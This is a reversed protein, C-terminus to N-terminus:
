DIAENGAEIGRVDDILEDRNLGSINCFEFVLLGVFCAQNREELRKLGVGQPEQAGGVSKCFGGKELPFDGRARVGTDDLCRFVISLKTKM